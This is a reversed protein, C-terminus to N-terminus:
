TGDYHTIHYRLPPGDVSEIMNDRHKLELIKDVKKRLEEEQPTPAAPAASTEEKEAPVEYLRTVYQSDKTLPTAPPALLFYVFLYLKFYTSSIPPTSQPRPPESEVEM